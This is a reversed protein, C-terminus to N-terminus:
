SFKASLNTLLQGLYALFNGVSNSTKGQDVYIWGNKLDSDRGRSFRDQVGHRTRKMMRKLQHNIRRRKSSKKKPMSLNQQIASAFPPLYSTKDKETEGYYGWLNDKVEYPKPERVFVLYLVLSFLLLEAAILAYAFM